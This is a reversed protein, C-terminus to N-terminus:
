PPPVALMRLSIDDLAAPVFIALAKEDVISAWRAGEKRIRFFHTDPDAPISGPLGTTHVVGIARTYSSLVADLTTPSAIRLHEPVSETLDMESRSQSQVSLYLDADSLLDADLSAVLQHEASRELSVFTYSATPVARRLLRDLVDAVGHFCASLRNHDYTPVRQPPPSASSRHTPGPLRASLRGALRTLMSYVREPHVDPGDLYHLVVPLASEIADLVGMAAVDTPSLTRQQFLEDRRMRFELRKSTLMEAVHTLIQTLRRSASVYLLPPIFDPVLQYAGPQSRRLEAVPMSTCGRQPLPGLWIQVHPHATEVSRPHRGTNADVRQGPCGLFRTDPQPDAGHLATNAADPRDAPVLVHVRLRDKDVPFAREINQPPPPRDHEPVRLVLGDPLVGHCATLHCEGHHLRDEDIELQTVGWACSQIARMQESMVRHQYRDWQQFHHPDLMMGEFWVPRHCDNMLPSINLPRSLPSLSQLRGTLM